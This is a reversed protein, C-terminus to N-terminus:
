GAGTDKILPPPPTPTRRADLQPKIERSVKKKNNSLSKISLSHQLINPPCGDLSVLAITDIFPRLRLILAFLVEQSNANGTGFVFIRSM